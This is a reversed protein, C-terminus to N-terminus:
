TMNIDNFYIWYTVLSNAFCCMIHTCLSLWKKFTNLANIIHFTASGDKFSHSFSRQFSITSLGQFSQSNTLCGICIQRWHLLYSNSWETPDTHEVGQLMRQVLRSQTITVLGAFLYVLDIIASDWDIETLPLNTWAHKFSIKGATILGSKTMTPMYVKGQGWFFSFSTDHQGSWFTTKALCSRHFDDKISFLRSFQYGCSRIINTSSFTIISFYESIKTHFSIISQM